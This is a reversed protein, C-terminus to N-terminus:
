EPKISEPPNNLDIISQNELNEPGLPTHTSLYITPHESIFKRVNDLTQRSAELDEFVVSLKNAYLAEDTYTIDGHIMYYKDGDEVIVISNGTTHGIAEIFYVGDVIKQSKPFNHYPGDTFEVPVVNEADLGLSEKETKSIYIEANPFSKIEGSHDEHKHTILVKSADEPKYGAEELASLYDTVMTGMYLPAGDNRPIEPTEKPFGTDVIIVEDGTDVVYNQLSSRYKISPDFKDMGEEGGFAFPQTMFGNEYLKVSSIKM